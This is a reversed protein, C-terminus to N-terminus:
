TRRLSYFTMLDKPFGGFAFFLICRDQVYLYQVSLCQRLCMSIPARGHVVRGVIMMSPIIKKIYDKNPLLQSSASCWSKPFTLAQQLEWAVPCQSLSYVKETSQEPSVDWYVHGSDRDQRQFSIVELMVSNTHEWDHTGKVSIAM